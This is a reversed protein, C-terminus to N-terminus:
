RLRSCRPLSIALRNLLGVGPIDFGIPYLAAPRDSGALNEVLEAPHCAIVALM